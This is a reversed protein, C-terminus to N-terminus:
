FTEYKEAMIKVILATWGTFPHSRRGDGQLGSYQEWAYGTKEYQSYINNILNERLQSYLTACLVRVPGTSISAYHHLASVALYNINIWIAGRWYDESSGFLQDQFSLSRLGFPSWLKVPDALLEVTAKLQPSDAPLLQLLFPFLSVYGEHELFKKPGSTDNQYAFDCFTSTAENWYFGNLRSLLDTAFDGYKQATEMDGVARSVNTFIRALLTM